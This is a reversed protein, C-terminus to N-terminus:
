ILDPVLPAADDELPLAAQTSLRVEPFLHWRIRDRQPLTLTHPYSVTFMGWLRHQVAMPDVAEDLDDRLLTRAEPFLERFDSGAVDAQTLRSFVVGWGYPFILKGAFPGGAHVLAPDARMLDVLELMVDRAQRLPHPQTVPGRATHLEVQDRNAPGLTPLRWDKVELLLVGWRPSLIVFDPQRAKPGIPIDHWVLYDDELCRKLQHLVRREGANCRADVASLGQPFIAM